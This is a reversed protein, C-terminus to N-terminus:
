VLESTDLVFSLPAPLPLKRGLKASARQTYEGEEPSWFVVIESRHRDVLLYAPIGAQAYADRKETRDVNADTERGSTIELIMQVGSPDAWSPQTRFYGRPAVAGDVRARGMRYAPIALGQEHIMRLEPCRAQIQEGICAAFENHEGDPAPVVYVRGNILEVSVEDSSARELTEFEELSVDADMTAM